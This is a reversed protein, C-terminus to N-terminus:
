DVVDPPRNAYKNTYLEIAAEIAKPLLHLKDKRVLYKKIKESFIGIVEKFMKIREEPSTGLKSEIDTVTM